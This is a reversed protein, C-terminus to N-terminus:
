ANLNYAHEVLRVLATNKEQADRQDVGKSYFASFRLHADKTYTFPLSVPPNVENQVEETASM